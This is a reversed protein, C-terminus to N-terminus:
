NNILRLNLVTVFTKMELERINMEKEQFIPSNHFLITWHEWVKGFWQIIFAKMSRRLFCETEQHIFHANFADKDITICIRVVHGWKSYLNALVLKHECYFKYITYLHIIGMSPPHKLVCFLPRWKCKECFINPDVFLKELFM